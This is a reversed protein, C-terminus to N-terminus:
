PMFAYILITGPLAVPSVPEKFFLTRVAQQRLILPLNELSRSLYGIATLARSGVIKEPHM